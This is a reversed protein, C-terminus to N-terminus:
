TDQRRRGRMVHLVVALVAALPLALGLAILGTRFLRPKVKHPASTAETVTARQDRALQFAFEDCIVQADDRQSRNLALELRGPREVFELQDQLEAPGLSGVKTVDLARSAISRDREAARRAQLVDRELSGTNRGTLEVTAECRYEPGALAAITVATAPVVVLTMVIPLRGARLIELARAM